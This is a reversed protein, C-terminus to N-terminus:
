RILITIDPLFLPLSAWVSWPNFSGHVGGRGMAHGYTHCFSPEPWGNKFAGVFEFRRSYPCSLAVSRGSIHLKRFIKSFNPTALDKKEFCLCLHPEPSCFRTSHYSATDAPVLSSLNPNKNYCRGEGRSKIGPGNGMEDPWCIGILQTHLGGSHVRKRLALSGLFLSKRLWEPLVWSAIEPRKNAFM